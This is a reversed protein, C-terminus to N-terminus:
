SSITAKATTSVMSQTIAAAADEAFLQNNFPPRDMHCFSITSLKAVITGLLFHQGAGATFFSWPPPKVSRTNKGSATPILPM